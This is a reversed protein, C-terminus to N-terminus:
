DAHRRLRSARCRLCRCRRVPWRFAACAFADVGAARQRGVGHEVGGRALGIVARDAHIVVLRQDRDLRDRELVGDVDRQAQREDAGRRVVARGEVDGAGALGIRRTEVAAKRSAARIAAACAKMLAISSRGGSRSTMRSCERDARLDSPWFKRSSRLRVARIARAAPGSSPAVTMSIPGPGPPRVRASSASPALRTMATSRSSRASAGSSSIEFRYGPGARSRARRRAASRDAGSARRRALLSRRWGARCCRWRARSRSARSRAM